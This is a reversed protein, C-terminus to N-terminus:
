VEVIVMVFVRLVVMLQTEEAVVRLRCFRLFLVSVVVDLLVREDDQVIGAARVAQAELARDVAQEQRDKGVGDTDVM